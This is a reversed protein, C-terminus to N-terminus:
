GLNGRVPGTRALMSRADTGHGHGHGAAGSHGYPNLLNQQNPDTSGVLSRSSVYTIRMALMRFADTPMTGQAKAVMRCVVHKHTTSYYPVLPAASDLETPEEFRFGTLLCRGGQALWAAAAEQAHTKTRCCASLQMACPESMAPAHRRMLNAFQTRRDIRETNAMPPLPPGTLSTPSLPNRVPGPNLRAQM